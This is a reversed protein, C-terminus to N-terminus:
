KRWNLKPSIALFHALLGVGWGMLPWRFWPREPRRTLNLTMLAANVGVFVAAHFPLRHPTPYGHIM